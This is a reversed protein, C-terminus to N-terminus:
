MLVRQVTSLGTWARSGRCSDYGSGSLLNAVLSSRVCAGAVCFLFRGGTATEPCMAKYRQDNDSCKQVPLFSEMEVYLLGIGLINGLWRESGMSISTPLTKSGGSSRFRRLSLVIDFNRSVSLSTPLCLGSSTSGIPECQGTKLM